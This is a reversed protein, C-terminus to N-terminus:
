GQNLKAQKVNSIQSLKTEHPKVQHVQILQSPPEAEESSCAAALFIETLVTTIYDSDRSKLTIGPWKKKYPVPHLFIQKM